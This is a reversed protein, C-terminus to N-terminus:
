PKLTKELLLRIFENDDPTEPPRRGSSMPFNNDNAILLTRDDLILLCEPTVYPFSYTSGLGLAGDEPSTIGKKDSIKMLDCILTKELSRSTTSHDLDIRYIRKIIAKHAQGEDRELVLMRENNFAELSAISVNAQDVDYFWYKGTFIQKHPDFQLIVRRTRSPDEVMAKEVSAYIFEEDPTLALGEIGGSRPLNALEEAEALHRLNAHDPTRLIKTGRSFSALEPVVPIDIPSSIIQGAPNVHVLSPGFEEGIWFTGDNMEVFSEPDLNAGSLRGDSPVDPLFHHPDSINTQDQYIVEGSTESNDSFEVQLHFWQLPVDPSNALTGFGNDQLALFQNDKLHLLSSFGQVPVGPLPLKHGNISSGLAIGCSPGPQFTAAPLIAQGTLQTTVESPSRDCASFLILYLVLILAPSIKVVPSPPKRIM